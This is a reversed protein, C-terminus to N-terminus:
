GRTFLITSGNRIGYEELTTEGRLLAIPDEAALYCEKPDSLDVGLHYAENLAELLEQATIHLPIDLDVSTNQKTRHFIVLARPTKM